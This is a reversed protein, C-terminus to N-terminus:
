EYSTNCIPCKPYIRLDRYTNAKICKRHFIHNCKTTIITSYNDVFDDKCVACKCCNNISINKKYIKTSMKNNFIEDFIKKHKRM